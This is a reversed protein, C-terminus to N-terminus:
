LHKKTQLQHSPRWAAVWSRSAISVASKWSMPLNILKYAHKGIVVADDPVNDSSATTKQASWELIFGTRLKRDILSWSVLNTCMGNQSNEIKGRDIYEWYIEGLTEGNVWEKKAIAQDDLGVWWVSRQLTSTGYVLNFLLVDRELPSNVTLLYGGKHAAIQNAEDWTYSGTIIKYSHGNFRFADSPIDLSGIVQNTHTSVTPAPMINATITDNAALREARDTFLEPQKVGLFGLMVLIAIGAALVWRGTRWLTVQQSNDSLSRQLDEELENVSSQRQSMDLSTAKLIVAQLAPSIVWGTRTSNKLAEALVNVKIHQGNAQMGHHAPLPKVGTLMRILVLGMAYIDTREDLKTEGNGSQQEPSAWAFSGLFQGTMTLSTEDDFHSAHSLGFDLVRVQGSADVLINSPKIDRHIVEKQHVHSVARVVDLFLRVVDEPCLVEVHKDVWQDISPGDVYDMALYMSGDSTVGNEHVRVIHPHNLSALINSERKFRLRESKSLFPGGYIVKIAVEEEDETKQARYVVAQGGRSIEGLLQYGPICNASLPIEEIPAELQEFTLPESVFPMVGHSAEIASDIISLYELCDSLDSLEPHSRLVQEVSVNEGKMRRRLTQMAIAKVQRSTHNKM